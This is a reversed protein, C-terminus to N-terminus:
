EEKSKKIFKYNLGIFGGFSSRNFEMEGNGVGFKNIRYRYYPTLNVYLKKSFHYEAGLNFQGSFFLSGMYNSLQKSSKEVGNYVSTETTNITYESFMGIATSIKFKESSKIYIGFLVPAAINKFTVAASQPIAPDLYVPDIAIFNYEVEYGKVAYLVGSQLFLKENFNYQVQLGLSYALTPTYEHGFGFNNKVNLSYNDYAGVVGLSFKNEQAFGVFCILYLITLVSLKKM